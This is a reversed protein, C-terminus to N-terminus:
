STAGFLSRLFHGCDEQGELHRLCRERFEDYWSQGYKRILADMLFDSLFVNDREGHEVAPHCPEIREYRLREGRGSSIRIPFLHCSIPKRWSLEGNLYAKEFACRAIGDEYYVFVCECADVCTTAFDGEVGEYLGAREIAALHREPLYKSIVPLANSLETCESDALPAGRRGPLTCCAGRCKALDCAFRGDAIADEIITQGVVFM